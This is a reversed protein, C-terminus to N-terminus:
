VQSLSADGQIDKETDLGYGRRGRNGSLGDDTKSSGFSDRDIARLLGMLVTALVPHRTEDQPENDSSETPM